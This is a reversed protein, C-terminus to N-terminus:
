TGLGRGPRGIFAVGLYTRLYGATTLYMILISLIGINKTDHDCSLQALSVIIMKREFAPSM